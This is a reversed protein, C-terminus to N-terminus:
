QKVRRRGQSLTPSVEMELLLRWGKVEGSGEQAFVTSLTYANPAVDFASPAQSYLLSARPLSSATPLIYYVPTSQSHLCM